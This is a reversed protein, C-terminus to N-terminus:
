ILNINILVQHKKGRHTCSDGEPLSNNRHPGNVSWGNVDSVISRMSSNTDLQNFLTAGNIAASDSDTEQMESRRALFVHYSTENTFSKAM